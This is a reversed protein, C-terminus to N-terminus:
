PLLALIRAQAQTGERVNLLGIVVTAGTPVIRSVPSATTM